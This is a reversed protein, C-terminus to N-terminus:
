IRRSSRSLWIVLVLLVIAAAFTGIMWAYIEGQSM